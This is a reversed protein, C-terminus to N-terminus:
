SLLLLRDGLVYSWTALEKSTACLESLRRGTSRGIALCSVPFNASRLCLTQDLVPPSTCSHVSLRATLFIPLDNVNTRMSSKKPTRPSFSPETPSPLVRLTPKKKGM